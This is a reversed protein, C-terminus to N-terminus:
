AARVSRRTQPLTQKTLKLAHYPLLPLTFSKCALLAINREKMATFLGSDEPLTRLLSYEVQNSALQVGHKKLVDYM